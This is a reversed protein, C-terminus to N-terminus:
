HCRSNWETLKLPTRRSGAGTWHRRPLKRRPARSCDTAAKLSRFEKKRPRKGSRKSIYSRPTISPPTPMRIPIQTGPKTSRGMLHLTKVLIRPTRPSQLTETLAKVSTPLRRMAVRGGRTRIRQARRALWPGGTETCHSTRCAIRWPFLVTRLLPPVVQITLM